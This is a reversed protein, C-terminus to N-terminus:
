GESGPDAPRAAAEKLEFARTVTIWLYADALQAPSTGPRDLLVPLEAVATGLREALSGLASAAACLLEVYRAGSGRWCGFGERVPRHWSVFLRPRIAVLVLSAATDGLVVDAPHSRGASRAAVTGALADYARAVENLDLDAISSLDSTPPPLRGSFAEWWEGLARSTLHTNARRLHHCRWGRLWTLIALRQDEQGLDVSRERAEVTARLRPESHIAVDYADLASRIDGADLRAALADLARRTRTLDTRAVPRVASEGASLWRVFFRVGGVYAATTSKSLGRSRVAAEFDPLKAELGSATLDDGPAPVFTSV